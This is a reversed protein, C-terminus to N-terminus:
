LTTERTGPSLNGPAKTIYRGPEGDEVIAVTVDVAAEYPMAPDQWALAELIAGPIGCRGRSRMDAAIEGRCGVGCAGLKTILEPTICEIVAEPAVNGAQLCWRQEPTCKVQKM